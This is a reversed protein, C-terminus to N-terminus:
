GVPVEGCGPMAAWRASPKPGTWSPTTSLRPVALRDDRAYQERLEEFSGDPVRSLRAPRDFLALAEDSLRAVAERGHGALACASLAM